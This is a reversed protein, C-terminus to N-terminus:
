LTPYCESLVLASTSLIRSKGPLVLLHWQRVASLARGAADSFAAAPLPTALPLARRLPPSPPLVPRSPRRCRRGRSRCCAFFARPRRRLWGTSEITAPAPQAALPAPRRRRGVFAVIAAVTACCASTAQLPSLRSPPLRCSFHSSSTFVLLHLRLHRAVNAVCGGAGPGPPPQCAHHRLRRRRLRDSHGAAAVAAIAVSHSSTPLLRRRRAVDAAAVFPLPPAVTRPLGFVVV